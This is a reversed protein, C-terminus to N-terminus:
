DDTQEKKFERDYPICMLQTNCSKDTCTYSKLTKLKGKTCVFHIVDALRKVCVM